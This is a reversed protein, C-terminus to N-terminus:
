QGIQVSDGLGDCLSPAWGSLLLSCPTKVDKCYRARSICPSLSARVISSHLWSAIPMSLNHRMLSFLFAQPAVQQSLRALRCATDTLGELTIGCTTRVFLPIAAPTLLWEVVTGQQRAATLIQQVQESWTTEALDPDPTIVVKGVTPLPCSALSLGRTCRWPITGGQTSCVRTCSTWPTSTSLRPRGCGPLKM